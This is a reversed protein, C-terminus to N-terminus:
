LFTAELDISREVGVRDLKEADILRSVFDITGMERMLSSNFSLTNMRDLIARATKPVGEINIPNIQIILM